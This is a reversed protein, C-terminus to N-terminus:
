RRARPSISLASYSSFRLGRPRYSLARYSFRMDSRSSHRCRKTAESGTVGTAESRDFAGWGWARPWVSEYSIVAIATTLYRSSLPSRLRFYPLVRM